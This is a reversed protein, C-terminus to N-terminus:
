WCLEPWLGDSEGRLCSPFNLRPLVAKMLAITSWNPVCIQFYIDSWIWISAVRSTQTVAHVNRTVFHWAAPWLCFTPLAVGSPAWPHWAPVGTLPLSGKLSFLVGCSQYCWCPSYGWPPFGVGLVAHRPQWWRCGRCAACYKDQVLSSGGPDM